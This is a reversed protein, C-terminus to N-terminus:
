KPEDAIKLVIKGRTHHTAAQEQAKVADALPLIQSVIPKIKKAEILKSIEALETANPKVSISAGRIGYKALEADDPKAVLTAIFGGKKIVGYSRALTDKGVSDLVVDVDKAIEEFKQKTYDIAVDAGLEKLLDQNSTSATAIVKAGRAKAIQIAMSGVGGSGGHILVTQGASLKANDILAQWATLAVLPVSAAEIYTLAAPKLTAEGENALAYEAYGGGWMTYAYIADGVRLKDIKAGTKEVVGAIDYGPVLPLTTGFFKAYKGSRILSDVPNVGAGIVRVLVENEKPEPRATEELKLVEPGGYEHVVIAKMTAPTTAAVAVTSSLALWSGFFFCFPKMM